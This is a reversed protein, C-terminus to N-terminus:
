RTGLIRFACLRYVSSVSGADIMMGHTTDGGAIPIHSKLPKHRVEFPLVRHKDDDVGDEDEDVENHFGKSSRKANTTTTTTTTTALGSLSAVATQLFRGDTGTRESAEAAEVSHRDLHLEWSTTDELHHKQTSFQQVVRRSASRTAYRASVSASSPLTAIAIAIGIAIGISVPVRRLIMVRRSCFFDHHLNM